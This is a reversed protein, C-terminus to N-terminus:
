VVENIGDVEQALRRLAKSVAHTPHVLAFLERGSSLMVEQAYPIAAAAQVNYSEILQKEILALNQGAPVQNVAAVVQEVGLKQILDIFNATYQFDQRDMKLVSVLVKCAGALLMAQEDWGDTVDMLLADLGLEDMLEIRGEELFRTWQDEMIPTLHGYRTRGPLVFLRGTESMKLPARRMAPLKGTVDLAAQTISCQDNLYDVLSHNIEDENLGLFLHVGPRNFNCDMLGVRRGQMAMLGAVNTSIFTRGAGARFSHFLIM